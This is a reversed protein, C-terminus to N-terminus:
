WVVRGLRKDGERGGAQTGTLWGTGHLAQAQKSAQIHVGTPPYSATTLKFLGEMHHRLQEVVAGEQCLQLMCSVSLCVSMCPPARLGSVVLLSAQQRSSGGDVRTAQRRM